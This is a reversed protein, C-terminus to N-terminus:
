TYLMSPVLDAEQLKEDGSVRQFTCVLHFLHDGIQILEDVLEDTVPRASLGSMGQMDVTHHGGVDVISQAAEELKRKKQCQDNRHHSENSIIM